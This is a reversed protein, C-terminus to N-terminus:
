TKAVKGPGSKNKLSEVVVKVLMQDGVTDDDFGSMAEVDRGNTDVGGLEPDEDVFEVLCTRILGSYLEM